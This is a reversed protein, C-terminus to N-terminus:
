GGKRRREIVPHDQAIQKAAHLPSPLRLHGDWLPANRCWLGTQISVAASDAFRGHQIIVMETVGLQQWSDRLRAQPVDYRTHKRQSSVRNYQKSESVFYYLHDHDESQFVGMRNGIYHAANPSTTHDGSMQATQHDARIRIVWAGNPVSPLGEGKGDQLGRYLKKLDSHVYVILPSGAVATPTLLAQAIRQKAQKETLLTLTSQIRCLGERYDFWRPADDNQVDLWFVEISKSGVRTRTIVPMLSTNGPIRIEDLYISVVTTDEPIGKARSLPYPVFGTGRIADILGNVAAYDRNEEDLPDDEDEPGQTHVLFQTAINHKACLARLIHKPDSEPRKAVDWNTEIIAVDPSLPSLIPLLHLNFWQEVEAASTTTCLTELSHPARLQTLQIDPVPAEKFVPSLKGLHHYADLVRSMIETHATIVAITIPTSAAPENRQPMQRLQHVVRTALMPDASPLVKLLHFCAQDLFLPGTGSGVPWLSPVHSHIPRLDGNVAVEDGGLDPLADYGMLELLRRADTRYHTEFKGEANKRTYIEFKSIGTATKVWTSKTTHRWKPLIHSLHVNIAIYPAPRRHLLLLRANLAHMAWAAQNRYQYTIPREWALLTADSSLSLNLPFSSEMPLYAMAQTVMWPVVEYALVAQHFEGILSAAYLACAPQPNLMRYAECGSNNTTHMINLSWFELARSVDEHSLLNLMALAPVDTSYDPSPNVWAPGGSMASLMEELTKTPLNEKGTLSRLLSWGKRYEETAYFQHVPALQDPDFRFLNTRLQPKM